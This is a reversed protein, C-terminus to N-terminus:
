PHNCDVKREAAKGDRLFAEPDADFRLRGARCSARLIAAASKVNAAIRDFEVASLGFTARVHAHLPGGAAFDADLRMLQRYTHPHYHRVRELM